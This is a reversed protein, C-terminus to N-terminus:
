KGYKNVLVEALALDEPTTIKINDYSGPYLKVKYGLREVIAADDTVEATPQRYAEKITECRFVQPTQAAWLSSRPLTERVIRDDGATKITDTVPVAAIAAGTEQVEALGRKILEETVLPRAGDHVVVWGCDKLRDLGAAVSDQRREGGVCIDTTDAWGQENVMQRCENIKSANVVVVIQGISQCRNFTEIVRALVPKGGLQAFAKDTGGMRRSEGAAVIIAGAKQNSHM